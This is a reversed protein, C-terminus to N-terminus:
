ISHAGEEFSRPTLRGPQCTAVEQEAAGQAGPEAQVHSWSGQDLPSPAGLPRWSTRHQPRSSTGPVLATLPSLSLLGEQKATETREKQLFHIIVVSIQLAFKACPKSRTKGTGQSRYRQTKHRGTLRLGGLQM